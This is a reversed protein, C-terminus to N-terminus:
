KILSFLFDGSFILNVVDMVQGNRAEIVSAAVLGDTNVTTQRAVDELASRSVAAIMKSLTLHENQAGKLLSKMDTTRLLLDHLRKHLDM